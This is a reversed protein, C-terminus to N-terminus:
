PHRYCGSIIVLSMAPAEASSVSVDIFRDASHAHVAAGGDPFFDLREITHGGAELAAHIREIVPRHEEIPILLQNIVAMDRVEDRSGDGCPATNSFISSYEQQGSLELVEQEYEALIARVTDDDFVAVDPDESACAGATTLLAVMALSGLVRVLGNM